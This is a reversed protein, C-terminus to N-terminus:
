GESSQVAAGGDVLITRDRKRFAKRRSRSMFRGTERGGRKVQSSIKRAGLMPRAASRGAAGERGAGLTTTM